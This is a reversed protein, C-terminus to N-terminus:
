LENELEEDSMPEVCGVIFLAMVLISLMILKKM